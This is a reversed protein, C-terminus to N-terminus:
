ATAATMPVVNAPLDRHLSEPRLKTYRRLMNWDRHGSVLAVQEISYGAEFFLSCGHHRLDHFHLDDIECAHVARTFATSVSAAHCPFILKRKRDQRKIIELPDIVQGALVFPGRVLPVEQDNGKKQKPHKRDRIWITRKTENLEAWSLRLIEGLRMGTACAFTVLDPM